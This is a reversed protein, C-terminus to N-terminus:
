QLKKDIKELLDLMRTMKDYMNLNRKDGKFRYEWVFAPINATRALLTKLDALIGTVKDYMNRKDSDKSYHYEWISNPTVAM